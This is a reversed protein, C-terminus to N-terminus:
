TTVAVVKSQMHPTDFALAGEEGFDCVLLSVVTGWDVQGWIKMFELLSDCVWQTRCAFLSSDVFLSRPIISTDM